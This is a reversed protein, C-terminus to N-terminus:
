GVMVRGDERLNATLVQDRQANGVVVLVALVLAIVGAFGVGMIWRLRVGSPSPGSIAEQDASHVEPESLEASGVPGRETDAQVTSEAPVSRDTSTLRVRETAAIWSAWDSEPVGTVALYTLLKAATPVNPNATTASPMWGSVTGSPLEEPVWASLGAVNRPSASESLTVSKGSIQTYSCSGKLLKLAGALQTRTHIQDPAPRPQAAPAPNSSSTM